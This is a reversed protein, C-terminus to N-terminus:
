DYPHEDDVEESDPDKDVDESDPDQDEFYEKGQRMVTLAIFCVATCASLQTCHSHDTHSVCYNSCNHLSLPLM